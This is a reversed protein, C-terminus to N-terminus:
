ASHAVENATEYIHASSAMAPQAVAVRAMVPPTSTSSTSSYFTNEVTKIEQKTEPRLALFAFLLIWVLLAGFLTWAICLHTVTITTNSLDMFLYERELQKILLLLRM